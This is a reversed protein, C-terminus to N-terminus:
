KNHKHWLMSVLPVSSPFLLLRSGITLWVFLCIFPIFFLLFSFFYLLSIYFLNTQFSNMFSLLIHILSCVALFFFIHCIYHSSSYFFSCIFSFICLFFNIEYWIDSFLKPQLKIINKLSKRQVM